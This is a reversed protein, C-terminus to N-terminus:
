FDSKAALAQELSAGADTAAPEPADGHGRPVSFGDDLLLREPECAHLSPDIAYPIMAAGESGHQGPHLPAPSLACASRRDAPVCLAVENHETRWRDLKASRLRRDDEEARAIQGAAIQKLVM